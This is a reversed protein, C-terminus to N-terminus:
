STLPEIEWGFERALYNAQRLGFVDAVSEYMFQDNTSTTWKKNWHSLSEGGKNTTSADGSALSLHIPLSSDKEGSPICTEHPSLSPKNIDNLSAENEYASVSPRGDSILTTESSVKTQEKVTVCGEPREKIM